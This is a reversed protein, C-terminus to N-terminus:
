FEALNVMRTTLDSVHLWSRIFAGICMVQSILLFAACIFGIVEVAFRNDIGDLFAFMLGTVIINCVTVVIDLLKHIPDLYVHKLVIVVVLYAVQVVLMVVLQAIQQTQLFGILAGLIFKKGLQIEMFWSRRFYFAHYIPGFKKLFAPTFVKASQRGRPLIAWVLVAFGVHVVVIFIAAIVAAAPVEPGLTLTYTTMAAFPFYAFSVVRVLTYVIRNRALARTNRNRNFLGWLGIFIFVVLVLLVLLALWFLSGYFIEGTFALTSSAHQMMSLPTRGTTIAEEGTPRESWPLPFGFISWRFVTVFNFFIGPSHVAFLGTLAAFQIQDLMVWTKAARQNRWWSARIESDTPKRDPLYRDELIVSVM